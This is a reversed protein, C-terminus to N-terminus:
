AVELRMGKGINKPFSIRVARGLSAAIRMITELTLNDNDGTEIQSILQQSVGLKVALAKQSLKKEQRMVAIRQALSVKAREIEYLHRFKKDKLCEKLHGEVSELRPHKM